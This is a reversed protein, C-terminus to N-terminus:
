LMVFSCMSLRCVWVSIEFVIHQMNNTMGTDPGDEDATREHEQPPQLCETNGRQEDAAHGHGPPHLHRHPGGRCQLPGPSAPGPIGIYCRGVNHYM